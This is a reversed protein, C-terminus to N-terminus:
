IYLTRLPPKKAGLKGTKWLQILCATSCMRVHAPRSSLHLDAVWGPTESRCSATDTPLPTLMPQPLLRMDLAPLTPLYLVLNSFLRMCKAVSLSIVTEVDFFTVDSWFKKNYIKVSDTLTREHTTLFL